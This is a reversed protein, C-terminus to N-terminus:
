PLLNKGAENRDKARQDARVAAEDVTGPVPPAVPHPTCFTDPVMAWEDGILYARVNFSPLYGTAYAPKTVAPLTGGTAGSVPYYPAGARIDVTGAFSAGDTVVLGMDNGGQPVPIAFQAWSILTGPFKEAYARLTARDKLSWDPCIPDGTWQLGDATDPHTDICHLGDFAGSCGSPFVDSDGQLIVMYGAAWAAEVAPWLTQRVYLTPAGAIKAVANHADTLSWGPTTPNQEESIPLLALMQDGTLDILGNTTTRLANATSQPTCGMSRLRASSGVKYQSDHRKRVHSM